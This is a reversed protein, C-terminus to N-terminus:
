AAGKMLRNIADVAACVSAVRGHVWAPGSQIGYLIEPADILPAREITVPHGGRIGRFAGAERVHRILAPLERRTIAEQTM